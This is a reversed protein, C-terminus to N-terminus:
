GGSRGAALRPRRDECGKRGPGLDFSRLGLPQTRDLNLRGGRTVGRSRNEWGGLFSPITIFVVIIPSAAPTARANAPAAWACDKSGLAAPWRISLTRTVSI